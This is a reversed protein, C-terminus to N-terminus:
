LVDEGRLWPCKTTPKEWTDQFPTLWRLDVCLPDEHMNDVWREPTPIMGWNSEVIIQRPYFVEKLEEEDAESYLKNYPLDLIRFSPTEESVLCPAGVKWRTYPNSKPGAYEIFECMAELFSNPFTVRGNRIVPKM